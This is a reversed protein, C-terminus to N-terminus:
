AITAPGISRFSAMGRALLAIVLIFVFEFCGSRKFSLFKDIAM